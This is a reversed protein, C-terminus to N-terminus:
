TNLIYGRCRRQYRGAATATPDAEPLSSVVELFCDGVQILGNELGFFGVAPDRYVVPANLAESLVSLSAELDSSVM